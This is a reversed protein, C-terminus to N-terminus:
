PKTSEFVAAIVGLAEDESHADFVVTVLDGDTRCGTWTGDEIRVAAKDSLEPLYRTTFEGFAKRAEAGGAYRVILLLPTSEGRRYRALVANTTDDIRLLNQDAIYYHSNLWIYHRFYRVSEEVLGERPLLDLVAPLPGVAAISEDIHCALDFVTRKSADTEPSALISVYYRGKWFLLLGETYQSGQGFKNDVVERSHSFVGFANDSATMDFVDVLIDPEGDRVYKRTVVRSFGYSLYLEAGGDIYDYLTERDYVRSDAPAWSWGNLEDPLAAGPDTNEEDAVTNESTVVTLICFAAVFIVAIRGM